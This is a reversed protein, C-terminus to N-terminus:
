KEYKDRKNAKKAVKQEGNQTSGFLITIRNCSVNGNYWHTLIKNKNKPLIHISSRYFVVFNM